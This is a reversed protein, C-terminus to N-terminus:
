FEFSVENGSLNTWGELFTTNMDDKSKCLFFRAVAKYWIDNSIDKIVARMVAKEEFVLLIYYYRSEEIKYKQHTYLGTLCLAHQKIQDKIRRKDFGNHLEFMIWRRKGQYSLLALLDPIINHGGSLRIKNIPQFSNLVKEVVFYHDCQILEFDEKYSQTYMVIHFDITTVRHFYDDTLRPKVPTFTRDEITQRLQNELGKVGLSTLSYVYSLKGFHSVKEFEVRNVLPKRRRFLQILARRISQESSSINLKAFQPITLQKFVVLNQLLKVQIPSLM